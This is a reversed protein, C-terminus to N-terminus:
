KIEWNTADYNVFTVNAGAALTTATNAGAGLNDDTAPWIELTEAGNNIITVEISGAAPAAPLTVADSATGCTSVENIQTTLAGDGQGGPNAATIGATVTSVLFGSVIVVNGSPSLDIDGTDVDLTLKATGGSGDGIYWQRTFSGGSTRGGEIYHVANNYTGDEDDLRIVPTPMDIELATAPSSTGIGVNGGDYSVASGNQGWFNGHGFEHSGAFVLFCLLLATVYFWKNTMM